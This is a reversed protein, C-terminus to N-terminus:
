DYDSYNRGTNCDYCFKFKAMCFIIMHDCVVPSSQM